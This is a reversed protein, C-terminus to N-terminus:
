VTDFSERGERLRQLYYRAQQWAIRCDDLARHATLGDPNYPESIGALTAFSRLCSVDYDAKYYLLARIEPWQAALMGSDFHNVGSGGWRYPPETTAHGALFAHLDARTNESDDSVYNDLDRLLGSASHMDRVVPDLAAIREDEVWVLREFSAIETQLDDTLALVGVEMIRDNVMDLGTTETDLMFVTV